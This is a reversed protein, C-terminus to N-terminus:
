FSFRGGLVVVRGSLAGTITGFNSNAINNSIENPNFNLNNFVNYVDMRLEIKANEGLVRTNPFGFGKVITLDLDRYGPMTLSNRKVGPPEPVATGSATSGYATYSPTSFYATGGNPYNSAAATKFADNSTSNGAGGVYAGPYLQGYGCTGCYLSGGNVSVVPSWPFGSHINFIPSISWDGVIKDVWSKGNHFFLPQWVGYLKLSKGINFDSRGYSLNPDYPYDQEFYPGSSTDLSKAWTFQADAMFESSFQHKLEALMQNYNAHGNVNWYDGGGIQPNLPLGLTAPVANPNEHFFLDRSISGMYGLTAVLHYGLDYETDLSYHHVRMTPLNGPFLNIGVQGTTPLGNAGLPSITNQNQPYTTLSNPSGATAYIIGPNPSTPTSMTLTPFIVLGPNNVINSSIALEEQNYNLGYGGRVVLKDNFMSPSWAFGIQPGFNDKQPNWSNGKRISLGTLFSTGAGPIAVLMNDEKSYLPGFYSWRLGVNITLNRRLKFDDQVFLGWLNERDDQRITTPFGTNPNFGGSEQQPADNLFDWINFFHYSPVGCGACDQLYFLRTLDGGFKITHRGIIKTAVDKYGYTWQNLISGVSPGFNNVTISGTQQLFDTPFGVPSQPNSTIENWRWGAANVRFENLFTSSFTRNWIASFADNIQDHHFLDYSRNGNYNTRSLPVWYIAFGIRDQQTVNADLRGNYQSANFTTPNSTNYNALDAVTGLGSGVGPSSNSTWTTDQTGLPGTLPTGVNIGQGAITRCNVGETLGATQCTANPNIAGIVANGPFSLYRSAISGAPALADFAPTDYWGNGQINSNPERVTEYNFFAFIKNKWIPGGISGGFQEFHNNDRVVPNGDGNYPQYANLNPQHTTFFLSGHVNNTGSKSTIQIQAGSFRGDEADYSNSVVKVNDVSDESPTIVTSGGWVASTTSIGDISIGNNETQNGNAIIQAGNETKFIGDAGGSQGGGTQTGPLNYNDNGAAQSNDGLAGPALAAVRLVDRGFSPLHQIENSSITGSINATETDLAETTGSVTISQQTQGLALQVDLGNPQDPIIHVEQFIKQEFGSAEVTMSYPAPPLANFQYIGNADSTSVVTRNTNKDVLTVKAGAVVAGSPDTVTGRLSGRYQASASSALLLLGFFLSVLSLRSFASKM